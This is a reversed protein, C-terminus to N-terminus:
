DLLGDEIVNKVMVIDVIDEKKAQGNMIM